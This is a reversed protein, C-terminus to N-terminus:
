NHIIKEIKVDSGFIERVKNIVNESKDSLRPKDTKKKVPEPTNQSIQNQCRLPEIKTGIGFIENILPRM